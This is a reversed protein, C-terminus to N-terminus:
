TGASTAVSTGVWVTLHGDVMGAVVPQQGVYAGADVQAFLTGTFAPLATSLQQWTAGADSSSWMGAPTFVAGAAGGVPAPWVESPLDGRGSLGLFTPPGFVIAQLPAAAPGVPRGGDTGTFTAPMPQWSTGDSSTWLVPEEAEGNGNSGGFAIFGNGTWLCGDLQTFSGPSPTPVFTAATWSSGDTSVWAVPLSGRETTTFSGVVVASNGALCSAAPQEIGLQPSTDMPEPAQWTSGNPSFWDVAETGAQGVVYQSNGVRGATLATLPGKVRTIPTTPAAPIGTGTSTPGTATTTPATVTTTPNPLLRGPSILQGPWSRGGNPSLSAFGGTWGRRAPVRSPPLPVSGVALLGGPVAELQNIAGGGFTGRDVTHWSKGGASSIIAVTTSGGGLSQAPDFRQVSMVLKGNDDILSTPVATKLPRGFVGSASPQQWTGDQHVLVYPQGPLNDAV